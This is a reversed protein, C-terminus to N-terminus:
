FELAMKKETKKTKKLNRYFSISALTFVTGFLLLAIPGVWNMLGADIIADNPDDPAYLVEVSDGRSYSPHSSGSENEFKITESTGPLKFEVVPYYSTSTKGDSTTTKREFGVIVGSVTKATQLFEYRNKAFIGGGITMAIGGFFFVGVVWAPIKQKAKEAKLGAISTIINEDDLNASEGKAHRAKLKAMGRRVDDMSHINHKHLARFLKFLLAIIILAGIGVSYKSVQFTYFFIALAGCGVAVCVFGAILMAPSKLRAQSPDVPSVLIDMEDGLEHSINPTSTRSKFRHTEGQSQYEIVPAYTESTGRKRSKSVEKSFGIIRGKSPKATKRFSYGDWLIFGGIAAFILGAIFFVIDM